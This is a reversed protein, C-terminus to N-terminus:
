AAYQLIEVEANNKISNQARKLLNETINEELCFEGCKDGIDAPVNKFFLLLIRM